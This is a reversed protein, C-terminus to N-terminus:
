NHVSYYTSFLNNISCMQKKYFTCKNIKVNFLVHVDSSMMSDKMMTFKGIANVNNVSDSPQVQWGENWGQLDMRKKKQFAQQRARVFHRKFTIIYNWIQNQKFVENAQFIMSKGTYNSKMMAKVKSHLSADDLM